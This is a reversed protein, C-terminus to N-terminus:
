RLRRRQTAIKGEVRLQTIADPAGASAHLLFPEIEVTVLADLADDWFGQVAALATPEIDGAASISGEPVATPPSYIRGLHKRGVIGTRKQVLIACNMPTVADAVAGPVATM